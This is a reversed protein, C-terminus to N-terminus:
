RLGIRGAPPKIQTLTEHRVVRQVYETNEDILVFPQALGPLLAGVVTAGDVYWIACSSVDIEKTSVRGPAPLQVCMPVCACSPRMPCNEAFQVHVAPSAPVENEKWIFLRGKMM